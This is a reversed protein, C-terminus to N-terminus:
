LWNICLLFVILIIVGGGSKKNKGTYKTREELSQNKKTPKPLKKM